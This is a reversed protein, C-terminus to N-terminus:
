GRVDEDRPSGIGLALGLSVWFAREVFVLYRGTTVLYDISSM